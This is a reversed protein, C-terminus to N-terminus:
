GIKWFCFMSTFVEDLGFSRVLKRNCLDKLYFRCGCVSTLGIFLM